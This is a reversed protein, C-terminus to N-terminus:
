LLESAVSCSGPFPPQDHCFVPKVWESPLLLFTAVLGARRDGAHLDATCASGLSVQCEESWVAWGAKHLCLSSHHLTAAILPIEGSVGSKVLVGIRFLPTSIPGSLYLVFHQFIWRWHTSHNSQTVKKKSPFLLPFARDAMPGLSSEPGLLGLSARMGEPHCLVRCNGQGVAGAMHHSLGCSDQSTSSGGQACAPQSSPRLPGPGLGQELFFARARGGDGPTISTHPFGDWDCAIGVQSWTVAEM